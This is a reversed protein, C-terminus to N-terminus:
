SRSRQSPNHIQQNSSPSGTFSQRSLQPLKRTCTENYAVRMASGSLVYSPRVLVPYGIKPQLGNRMTSPNSNAGARSVFEWNTLYHVSNQATKLWIWTKASTGLIKVGAESLPMSLNNPIQGGVSTIIGLPNEKEYIDM